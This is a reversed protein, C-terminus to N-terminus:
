LKMAVKDKADRENLQWLWFLPISPQSSNSEVQITFFIPINKDKLHLLIDFYEKAQIFSHLTAILHLTNASRVKIACVCTNFQM